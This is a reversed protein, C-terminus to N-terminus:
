KHYLKKNIERVELSFSDPNTQNSNTFFEHMIKKLEAGMKKLKTEDRGNLLSIETHIFFAEKDALYYDKSLYFRCKVSNGDAIIKLEVMKNIMAKFFDPYIIKDKINPTHELIIHPM